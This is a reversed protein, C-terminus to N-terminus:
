EAEEDRLRKTEEEGFLEQNEVIARAVDPLTRRRSRAQRQLMRMADPEDVGKRKVIIWKAQEIIKRDELRQKLGLIEQNQRAYELYRAWAVTIAARLQDQTVPKLLYGFVGADRARAVYERDSYASLVIVPIALQGFIVAAAALGDMGPMRVDILAMEPGITRCLRIAEEGSTAPGIVQYGLESLNAAIGSGVLHEDDAVLITAPQVPFEDADPRSSTVHIELGAAAM